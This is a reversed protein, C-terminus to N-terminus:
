FCSIKITEPLRQNIEDTREQVRRIEAQIESIEKPAEEANFKEAYELPNTSLIDNYVEFQQLYIELPKVGESM